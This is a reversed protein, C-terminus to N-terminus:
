TNLHARQCALQSSLRRAQRAALPKVLVLFRPAAENGGNPPRRRTERSSCSSSALQELRQRDSRSDRSALRLDAVIARALSGLTMSLCARARWDAM